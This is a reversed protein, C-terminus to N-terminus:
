TIKVRLQLVKLNCSSDLFIIWQTAPNLKRCKENKGGEQLKNLTLVEKAPIVHDKTCTFYLIQYHESLERLYKLMREKRYKDFHVFADDVIVPFPYYPKLVKILSIRLAM